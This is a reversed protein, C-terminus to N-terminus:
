QAAPVDQIPNSQHLAVFISASHAIIEIIFTMSCHLM